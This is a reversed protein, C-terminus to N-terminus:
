KKTRNASETKESNIEKVILDLVDGLKFQCKSTITVSSEAQRTKTQTILSRCVKAVTVDKSGAVPELELGKILKTM